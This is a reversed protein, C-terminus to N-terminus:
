ADTGFGESAEREPLPVTEQFVTIQPGAPAQLRANISKWPTLTPPAVETAGAAVLRVSRTPPM